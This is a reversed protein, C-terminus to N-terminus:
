KKPSWIYYSIGFMTQYVGLGSDFYNGNANENRYEAHKSATYEARIALNSKLFYEMGLSMTRVGTHVGNSYTPHEPGRKVKADDLDYLIGNPILSNSNSWRQSLFGFVNAYFSLKKHQIGLRISPGFNYNVNTLFNLSDVNQKIEMKQNNYSLEMGVWCRVKDPRKGFIHKYGLYGGYGLNPFAQPLTAKSDTFSPAATFSYSGDKSVVEESANLFLLGGGIYFGEQAFGNFAITIVVLISLFLNRM